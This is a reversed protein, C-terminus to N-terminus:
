RARSVRRARMTAMLTSEAPKAASAAIQHNWLSSFYTRNLELQQVSPLM